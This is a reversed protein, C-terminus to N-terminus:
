ETKRSVRYVEDLTTMGELAKIIGAQELTIMGNKMAADQMELMTANESLM